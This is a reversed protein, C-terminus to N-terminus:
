SIFKTLHLFPSLIFLHPRLNGGCIICNHFNYEWNVPLLNEKYIHSDLKVLSCSDLARSLAWVWPNKAFYVCVCVFHISSCLYFFTFTSFMLKNKSFVCLVFSSSFLLFHFHFLDINIFPPLFACFFLNSLKTLIFESLFIARLDSLGVFVLGFHFVHLLRYLFM